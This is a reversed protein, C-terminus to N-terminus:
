AKNAKRVIDAEHEHVKKMFDTDESPRKMELEDYQDLIYLEENYLAELIKIRHQIEILWFNIVVIDPENDRIEEHIFNTFKDLQEWITGENKDM